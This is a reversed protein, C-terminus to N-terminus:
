AVTRRLPKGRGANTRGYWHVGGEELSARKISGKRKILFKKKERGKLM